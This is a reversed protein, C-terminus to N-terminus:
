EYCFYEPKKQNPLDKLERYVSSGNNQNMGQYVVNEPCVVGYILLYKALLKAHQSPKYDDFGKRTPEAYQWYKGEKAMVVERVTDGKWKSSKIRNLPVSGTLLLCEDGNGKNELEMTSALDHLEQKDVEGKLQSPKTIYGTMILCLVVGAVVNQQIVYKLTEM